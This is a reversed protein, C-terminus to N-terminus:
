GLRVVKLLVMRIELKVVKLVAMLVVKKIALHMELCLELLVVWLIGLKDIM